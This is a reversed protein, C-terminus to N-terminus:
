FTLLRLIVCRVILRFAPERVRQMARSRAKIRRKLFPADSASPVRRLHFHDKPKVTVIRSPKHRRASRDFSIDAAEARRARFTTLATRVPVVLRLVALTRLHLHRCGKKCAVLDTAGAPM